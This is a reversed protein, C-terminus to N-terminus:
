HVPRIQGSSRDDPLAEADESKVSNKLEVSTATSAREVGTHHEGSTPTLATSGTVSARPSKLNKAIVGVLNNQLYIQGVLQGLIEKSSHFMGLLGEGTTVDTGRYVLYGADLTICERVRNAVFKMFADEAAKKEESTRTDDKQGVPEFHTNWERTFEEMESKSFRKVRIPVMDAGVTFYADFHDKLDLIPQRPKESM